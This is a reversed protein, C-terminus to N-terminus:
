NERIEILSEADFVKQICGSTEAYGLNATWDAFCINQTFSSLVYTILFTLVLALTLM